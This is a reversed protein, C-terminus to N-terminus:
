FNWFARLFVYMRSYTTVEVSLIDNGKDSLDNKGNEINGTETCSTEHFIQPCKCLVITDNDTNYFVKWVTVEQNNRPPVNKGKPPLLNVDAVKYIM